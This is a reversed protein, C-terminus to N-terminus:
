RKKKNNVTAKRNRAVIGLAVVGLVFFVILGTILYDEKSINLNQFLGGTDPAGTDPVEPCTTTMLYPRSYLLTQSNDAEIHYAYLYLQEQCGVQSLDLPIWIESDLAQVSLTGVSTGDLDVYKEGVVTGNSTKVVLLDAEDSVETVVVYPNGNEDATIKGVVPVYDFTLVDFREDGDISITTAELKYSGYGPTTGDSFTLNSLDIRQDLLEKYDYDANDDRYVEATHTNGEPDTYTLTIVVSRAYNYSISYTYSPNTIDSGEDSTLHVVPQDEVVKVVLTDTLSTTMASASPSPMIAACATMGAVLVLGSIGLINKQVRKM